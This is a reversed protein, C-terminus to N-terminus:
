EKVKMLWLQRKVLSRVMVTSWMGPYKNHVERVICETLIAGSLNPFKTTIRNTFDAVVDSIKPGKKRFMGTIRPWLSM